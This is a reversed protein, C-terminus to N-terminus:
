ILSTADKERELVVTFSQLDGFYRAEKRHNRCSTM